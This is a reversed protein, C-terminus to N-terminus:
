HQWCDGDGKGYREESDMLYTCYVTGPAHNIESPGEAEFETIAAM